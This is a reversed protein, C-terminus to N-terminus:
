NSGSMGPLPWQTHDCQVVVGKIEKLLALTEELVLTSDSSQDKQKLVYSMTNVASSTVKSQLASPYVLLRWAVLIDEKESQDNDNIIVIFTKEPCDATGSFDAMCNFGLGLSFFCIAASMIRFKHNKEILKKM